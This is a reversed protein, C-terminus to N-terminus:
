YGPVLRHGIQGDPDYPPEKVSKNWAERLDDMNEQSIVTFKGMGNMALLVTETGVYNSSESLLKAQHVRLVCEKLPARIRYTSNLWGTALIGGWGIAVHGLATYDDVEGPHKIGLIMTNNQPTFGALLFDIGLDHDEIKENIRAFEAEGFELLGTKRWDDVSDIHYQALFHAHISADRHTHYACKLLDSWDAEGDEREIEARARTLTDRLPLFRTTTGAHGILWNGFFGVRQIKQIPGTRSTWDESVMGDCAAIIYPEVHHRTESLVSTDYCTAMIVVTMM